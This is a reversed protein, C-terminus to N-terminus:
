GVLYLLPFLFIWVVDVFHWYLGVMEVTNHRTSAFDHERTRWALILLIVMGITMHLAHLLTLIFYFFFFLQAHNSDAFHKPDWAIRPITGEHYDISYEIAKVGLFAAGLVVTGILYMAIRNRRGDHQTEHVAMAMCFSSCLLIATNATAISPYLEHSAEAFAEFYLARFITFAMLAGGFFLVETALFTWMGLTAAERQQGADDFQMAVPPPATHSSAGHSSVDHSPVAHPNSVPLESV